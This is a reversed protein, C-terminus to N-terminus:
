WFWPSVWKQVKKVKQKKYDFFVKQSELIVDLVNQHNIKVIFIFVHFFKLSKVLVGKSFDRNKYKKLKKIKSDLFVKKGELIITLCIRRDSKALFLFM